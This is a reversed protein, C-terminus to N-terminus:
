SVTRPSSSMQKFSALRKTVPIATASVSRSAALTLGGVFVAFGLQTPPGWQGNLLNHFCAAWLLFSIVDNDRVRVLSYYLLSFILWIRWIIYFFGFVIGAEMFIREWEGEGLLFDLEGTMLKAGANTGLGLGSGWLSAAKLYQTFQM